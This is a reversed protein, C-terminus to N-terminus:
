QLTGEGGIRQGTLGTFVDDLSAGGGLRAKLESPAGIAAVKGGAILALRDCVDDAEDMYHTSFVVAAGMERQLTAVHEWV